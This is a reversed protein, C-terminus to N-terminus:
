SIDGHIVAEAGTRYWLTALGYANLTRNGTNTTGGQRVTMGSGQTLTFATGSNNYIAYVEGANATNITQGTTTVFCQGRAWGTTNVPMGKWGLEYTGDSAGSVVGSATTATAANGSINTVTVTIDGSGDFAVGNINRATQLKTATAANGSINTVTVTIPSSGDFSVGNITTATALKTATSANGTLPGSLATASLTGTISLGSSSYTGITSNNVVFNHTVGAYYNVAGGLVNGIDGILFRNSNDLEFGARLTSSADNFQLPVNNAPPPVSITINATGDFAVGNINRATALKTATSANGTLPGVFATATATGAVDLTTTPTKGIGFRGSTDFRAVETTAQVFTLAGSSTKLAYNNVSDYLRLSASTSTDRVRFESSAGLFDFKSTPTAMGVGFNGSSDIVAGTIYGTPTGTGVTANVLFSLGGSTYLANSSGAWLGIGSAATNTDAQIFQNGSTGRVRAMGGTGTSVDLLTSPSLTGVGISGGSNIVLRGLTNNTGFILGGVQANLSLNVGDHYTYGVQAGAVKLGYIASTSGNVEITGRGSTGWSSVGTGVLFNGSADFRAAEVNSALFGVSHASQTGFYLVGNTTAGATEAVFGTVNGDDVVLIPSGASGTFHAVRGSAATVEFKYSGTPTSGTLAVNGAADIQQRLTGATLLKIGAGNEAAITVSSGQNFGIYGTRASAASNYGSLFAADNVLRVQEAQGNQVHLGVLPAVGIGIGATTVRAVNVSAVALDIESSARIATFSSAVAFDVDGYYFTAASMLAARRATGGGDKFRLGVANPFVIEGTMTGGGTPLYALVMATWTSSGDYQEFLGTASNLRKAGAPASTYDITYAPDFLQAINGVTFSSASMGTAGANISVVKNSNAAYTPLRDFAAQISAFEARINASTGLSGTTPSGTATYYPNSM